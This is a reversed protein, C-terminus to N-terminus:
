YEAESVYKQQYMQFKQTWKSTQLVNNQNSFKQPVNKQRFQDKYGKVLLEGSRPEWKELRRTVMMGNEAKM